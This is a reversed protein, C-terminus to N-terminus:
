AAMFIRPLTVSVAYYLWHVIYSYALGNRVRLILFPFMFGFAMASLMFRIVYGTPVGGLALLIHAAGFGVACSISIRRLSYQETALSLVLAVVLLQQFLIDISKPLFYEPTAFLIEPPNWSERWTVTPLRPLVYAAFLLSGGFALSWVLYSTLPNSFTNWRGYQPWTAYLPWFTIVAIGIWFTYYLTIALAGSNYSPLVGFMPLLHYYGADSLAWIAAVQALRRLLRSNEAVM